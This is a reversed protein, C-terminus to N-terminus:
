DPRASDAAKNASLQSQIGFGAARLTESLRNLQEASRPNRDSIRSATVAFDGLRKAANAHNEDSTTVAQQINVLHLLIRDLSKADSSASEFDHSLVERLLQEAHQLHPHNTPTQSIM